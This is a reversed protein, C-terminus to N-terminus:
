SQRETAEASNRCPKLVRNAVLWFQWQAPDEALRQNLLREFQDLLAQRDNHDNGDLRLSRTGSAYDFAVSFVTYALGRKTILRVFGSDIPYDFERAGFKLRFCATNEGHRQRAPTDVMIVPCKHRQLLRRTGASPDEPCIVLGRGGSLRHYYRERMKQYLVSVLGMQRVSFPQELFVILPTRGEKRLHHIGLFGAGWHHCLALFGQEQPWDAGNEVRTVAWATKPRFRILWYDAHDLLRLMKQRRVFDLEDFEGLYCRANALCEPIGETYLPTKEVIFRYFRFAAPWPTFVCVPPVVFMELISRVERKFLHWPKILFRLFGREQSCSDTM